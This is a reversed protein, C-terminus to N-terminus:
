SPLPAGPAVVSDGDGTYFWEPQFGHAGPAPKGNEVGHKFMKMSDTLGESGSLKAHMADRGEASGLHTLGTGTVLLHAPDPHDLPALVRHDALAQRIDVAGGLGLRAVLAELPLKEAVARQALDYATGAGEVLRASGDEALVALGRRGDQERFQVLRMRNSGRYNRSVITSRWWLGFLASNGCDM